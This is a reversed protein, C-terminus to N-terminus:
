SDTLSRALPHFLSHLYSFYLIHFQHEQQNHQNVLHLGHPRLGSSSFFNPCSWLSTLLGQMWGDKHPVIPPPIHLLLISDVFPFSFYHKTSWFVVLALLANFHALVKVTQKNICMALYLIVIFIGGIYVM